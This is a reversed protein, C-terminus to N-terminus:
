KQNEKKWKEFERKKIREMIEFVCGAWYNRVGAGRPPGTMRQTLLVEGTGMNVFTVWLSGENNTKNFSEVNFMMGVGTAGEYNYAAAIQEVGDKRLHVHDSSNESLINSIDLDANHNRTVDLKYEVAAKKRLMATVNFKDKERELLDNWAKIVNQIDSQSGYKERDGIFIAGTMDLGLWTITADPDFIDNVTQAQLNIGSVVVLLIMMWKKLNMVKSNVSSAKNDVFFVIVNEKIV